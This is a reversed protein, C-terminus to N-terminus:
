IYHLIHEIREDPIMYSLTKRGQSLIEGKGCHKMFCSCDEITPDCSCRNKRSPSLFSFSRTYDCRCTRDNRSNENSYVIHGEDSCITKKFICDSGQSTVFPFPQFRNPPCPKTDFNGSNVM